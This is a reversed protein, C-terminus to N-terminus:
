IAIGLMLASLSVDVVPMAISMSGDTGTRINPLEATVPGDRTDYTVISGPIASAMPPSLRVLLSLTALGTMPAAGHVGTSNHFAVKAPGVSNGSVIALKSGLDPGALQRRAAEPTVGKPLSGLIISYPNLADCQLVSLGNWGKESWVPAQLAWSQAVTSATASYFVGINRGEPGHLRMVGSGGGALMALASTAHGCWVLVPTAGEATQYVSAGDRGVIALKGRAATDARGTALSTLWTLDLGQLDCASHTPRDIVCGFTRPCGDVHTLFSQARLADHQLSHKWGDTPPSFYRSRNASMQQSASAFVIDALLSSKAQDSGSTGPSANPTDRSGTFAPLQQHLDTVM